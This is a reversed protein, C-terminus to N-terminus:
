AGVHNRDKMEETYIKRYVTDWKDEQIKEAIEKM